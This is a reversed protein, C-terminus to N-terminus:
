LAARFAKQRLRDHPFIGYAGAYLELPDASTGRVSFDRSAVGLDLLTRALAYTGEGCGCAADLCRVQQRRLGAERLWRALGATQGPYRDFAGGYRRPMSQACLFRTRYAGDDTLHRLLRAPNASSLPPDLQELVDLWTAARHFLSAELFPPERFSLHCLREFSRRIEVLPLLSETHSRMEGTVVLGPGWLGFPSTACLVAFREQLRAIQRELLADNIPDQDLLERLRGAADAEDLLPMAPITGYNM